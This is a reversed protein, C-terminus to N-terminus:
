GLHKCTGNGIDLPVKVLMFHNMFFEFIQHNSLVSDWSVIRSNELEMRIDRIPFDLDVSYDIKSVLNIGKGEIIIRLKSVLDIVKERIM